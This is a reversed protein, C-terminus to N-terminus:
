VTLLLLVLLLLLLWLKLVYNTITTYVGKYGGHLEKIVRPQARAGVGDNHHQTTSQHITVRRPLSYLGCRM